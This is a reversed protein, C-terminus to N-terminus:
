RSTGSTNTTGGGTRALERRLGDVDAQAREVDAKLKEVRDLYRQYNAESGLREPEGNNYAAQAERLRVEARRLEAQLVAQADSDRARQDASGVRPTASRPPASPAAAAPAANPRVAEIVTLNGGEMPKCGRAAADGPNNTYENGCRWITGQAQAFAPLLGGLPILAVVLLAKLM